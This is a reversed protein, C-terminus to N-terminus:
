VDELLLLEAEITMMPVPLMAHELSTVAADAVLQRPLAFEHEALAEAFHEGASIAELGIFALTVTHRAGSFTASAWPQETHRLLEAQGGALRLLAELLLRTPRALSRLAAAQLMARNQAPDALM